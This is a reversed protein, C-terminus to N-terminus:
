YRRELTKITLKSCIECRIRTNRTNVKLLYIGVPYLDFSQITDGQEPLFLVNTEFSANTICESLLLNMSASITCYRPKAM